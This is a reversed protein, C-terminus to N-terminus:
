LCGLFFKRCKYAINERALMTLDDIQAVRKDNGSNLAIKYKNVM